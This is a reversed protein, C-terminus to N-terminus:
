SGYEGGRRLFILSRIFKALGQLLLLIAGLPIVSKFFPEFPLLGFMSVEGMAFSAKAVSIGPPILFFVFPFFFILYTIIDLIARGRPSFRRYFVDVSVHGKYLLTYGALIMALTGYIYWGLEPVWIHPARFIYRSVVEGTVIVVLPVVAWVIIRGTWENIADICRLFTKVNISQWVKMIKVMVRNNENDEEYWL